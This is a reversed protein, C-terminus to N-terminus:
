SAKLHIARKLFYTAGQGFPLACFTTRNLACRWETFWKRCRWFHHVRGDEHLRWFNLRERVIVQIKKLFGREDSNRTGNREGRHFAASKIMERLFLQRAVNLPLSLKFRQLLNLNLWRSFAVLFQLIILSFFSHLLSIFSVSSYVEESGLKRGGDWNRPKISISISM